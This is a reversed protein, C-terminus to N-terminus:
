DLKKGIRQLLSALLGHMKLQTQFAKDFFSLASLKREFSNLWWILRSDLPCYVTVLLAHDIRMFTIIACYALIIVWFCELFIDLCAVKPYFPHHLSSYGLPLFNSLCLAILLLLQSKRMGFLTFHSEAPYTRGDKTGSSRKPFASGSFNETRSVQFYPAPPYVRIEDDPLFAPNSLGGSKGNLEM